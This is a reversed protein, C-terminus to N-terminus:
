AFGSLQVPGLRGVWRGVAPFPLLLLFIWKPSSEPSICAATHHTPPYAAADEKQQKDLVSSQQQQQQQASARATPLM